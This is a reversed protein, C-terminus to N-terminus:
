NMTKQPSNSNDAQFPLFQGQISRQHELYWRALSGVLWGDVELGARADLFELISHRSGVSYVEEAGDGEVLCRRLAEFGSCGVRRGLVGM